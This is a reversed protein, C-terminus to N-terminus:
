FKKVRIKQDTSYITTVITDASATIVEGRVIKSEQSTGPLRTRYWKALTTQIIPSLHLLIIQYQSLSISNTPTSSATRTTTSQMATMTLEGPCGSTPPRPNTGPIPRGRLGRTAGSRASKKGNESSFRQFIVQIANLKLSKKLPTRQSDTSTPTTKYFM